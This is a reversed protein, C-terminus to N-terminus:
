ILIYLIYIYIYIYIHWRQMNPATTNENSILGVPVLLSPNSQGLMQSGECKVARVNSQGLM